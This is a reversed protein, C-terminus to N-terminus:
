KMRRLLMVNNTHIACLLRDRLDLDPARRAVAVIYVPLMM